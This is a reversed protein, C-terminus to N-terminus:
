RRGSAAWAEALKSPSMNFASQFAEDFSTGKRLSNMMADFSNGRGMIAKMFAYSAVSAQDPSLRNMVFDDPKAMSGLASDIQNDWAVVRPDNKSMRSAVVRGVGEAFWDPVTGNGLSAVHSSAILQAMLVSLDYENDSPVQISGYADTVNYRYHGKWDPPLDRREIMNGFEAYDYRKQFFYLTMKGKVLPTTGPIKLITRVKDAAKDAEGVLEQLSAEGMTGYALFNPSDVKSSKVNPMGLDWMQQSSEARMAALQDHTAKKALAIQNNRLMSADNPSEGDFKGGERIWMEIKTIQEATLPPGNRPMRGDGTAKILRVIMSDEPKGPVFPAGSDGGRIFRAFNDMGLGGPPNNGSHCNVCRNALVGAVDMGFSVQENGTASTVQLEMMAAPNAAAGAAQNIPAKPDLGDFKAGEKVWTKLATLEPPLVRGGGRPMDGTEITEILRSGIDDGPFVVKGEAPGKMLIEYTSASFGGRSGTVHCNGCRANLIPAVHKTFSINATPFTTPLPAPAAAAPPPTGPQNAMMMPASAMSAATLPKLTYGELELVGHSVALSEALNQLEQTVEADGATGLKEMRSQIDRVLEVSEAIMGRKLFNSTKRIDLKLAQLQRQQEANPAAYASSVFLGSLLVVIATTKISPLRTM